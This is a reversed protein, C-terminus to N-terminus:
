PEILCNFCGDRSSYNADDCEEGYSWIGDTCDRYKCFEIAIAEKSKCSICLQNENLFHDPKCICKNNSLTRNLESSCSTCM